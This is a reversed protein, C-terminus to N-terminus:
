HQTGLELPNAIRRLVRRRDSPVSEIRGGADIAQQVVEWVTRLDRPRVEDMFRPHAPYQVDLM